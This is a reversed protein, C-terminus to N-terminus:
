LSVPVWGVNGDLYLLSPVESYVTLPPMSYIIYIDKKSIDYGKKHNQLCLWSAM